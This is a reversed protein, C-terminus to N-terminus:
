KQSLNQWLKTLLSSLPLLALVLFFLGFVRIFSLYEGDDKIYRTLQQDYKRVFHPFFICVLGIILFVIFALLVFLIEQQNAEM